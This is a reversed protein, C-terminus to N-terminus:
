DGRADLLLKAQKAAAKLQWYAVDGAHSMQKQTRLVKGLYKYWRQALPIDTTIGAPLPATQDAM